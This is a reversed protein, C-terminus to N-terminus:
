VSAANSTKESLRARALHYLGCIRKRDTEIGVRKVRGTMRMGIEHHAKSCYSPMKVLHTLEENTMYQIDEDALKRRTKKLRESNCWPCESGKYDIPLYHDFGSCNKNLRLNAIYEELADLYESATGRIKPRVAGIEFTSIFLQKLRTSLIDFDPFHPPVLTKQPRNSYVYEGKIAMSNISPVAESRAIAADDLACAYPRVGLLLLHIHTALIYYDTYKTFTQTSRPIEAFSHAKTKSFLELLEPCFLNPDLGNCPLPVEKGKYKLMLHFSDVDIIKIDCTKRNVMINRENFDGICSKSESHVAKVIRCLESAIWVRKYLSLPHTESYIESLKEYGELFRMTYGVFDKKQPDAYLIDKPIVLYKRFEESWDISVLAQIKMKRDENPSKYIKACVGDDTLKYLTGEGGQGIMDATEYKRNTSGYLIM